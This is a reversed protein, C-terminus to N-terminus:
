LFRACTAVPRNIAPVLTMDLDPSGVEEPQDGVFRDAAARECGDLLHDFADIVEDGV